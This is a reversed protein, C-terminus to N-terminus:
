RDYGDYGDFRVELISMIRERPTLYFGYLRGLPRLVGCRDLVGVITRGRGECKEGAGGFGMARRPSFRWISIDAYEAGGIGHLGWPLIPTFIPSERQRDEINRGKQHPKPVNASQIM